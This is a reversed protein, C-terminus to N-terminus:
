SNKVVDYAEMLMSEDSNDVSERYEPKVEDASRLAMIFGDEQFRKRTSNLNDAKIKDVGYINQLLQKTKNNLPLLYGDVPTQNFLLLDGGSGDVSEKYKDPKKLGDRGDKADKGLGIKTDKTPMNRKDGATVVLLDVDTVVVAAPKMQVKNDYSWADPHEPSFNNEDPSVFDLVEIPLTIPNVFLAPNALQVVDIWYESPAEAGGFLGNSTEPRMSKIASCKLPLDSNMLEKIKDYFQSPRGALKANKLVDKRIKVYDGPMLGGGTKYRSTEEEVLLSFKSEYNKFM